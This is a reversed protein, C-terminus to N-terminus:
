TRNSRKPKVLGTNSLLQPCGVLGSCCATPDAPFSVRSLGNTPCNYFSYAERAMPAAAAPAAMAVPASMLATLSLATLFLVKMM